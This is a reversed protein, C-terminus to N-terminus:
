NDGVVYIVVGVGLFLLGKYFVYNMLYFIVINYLFLGIVIVMM